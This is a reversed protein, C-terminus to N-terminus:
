EGEGIFGKITELLEQADFPKTIYADAKLKKAHEINKESALASFMVIPIKSSYTHKKLNRCVHYGDLQPLMIDLIILDPNEAKAKELAETGDYAVFVKYGAIELRQKVLEVMEVEDDVLLIRKKM